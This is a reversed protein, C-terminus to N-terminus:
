KECMGVEIRVNFTSDLPTTSADLALDTATRVTTPDVGDGAGLVRVVVTSCREFICCHLFHVWRMHRHITAYQQVM